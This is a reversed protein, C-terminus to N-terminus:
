LLAARSSIVRADSMLMYTSILLLQAIIKAWDFEHQVLTRRLPLKM